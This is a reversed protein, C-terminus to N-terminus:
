YSLRMADASLVGWSNIFRQGNREEVVMQASDSGAKNEIGIHWSETGCKCYRSQCIDSQWRNKSDLSRLLTKEQLCLINLLTCMCCAASHIYSPARTTDIFSPHERSNLHLVLDNAGHWFWPDRDSLSM